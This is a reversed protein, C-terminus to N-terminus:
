RGRTVWIDGYFSRSVYASVHLFTLSTELEYRQGSTNFSSFILSYIWIILKILDLDLYIVYYDKGVNLYTVIKFPLNRLYFM